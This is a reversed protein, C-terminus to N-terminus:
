PETLQSEDFTTIDHKFVSPRVVLVTPQRVQRSIQEAMTDRNNRRKPASRCKSSLSSGRRHWNNEEGAGVRDFGTKDRVEAARAAVDGTDVGHIHPDPETELSEPKQM